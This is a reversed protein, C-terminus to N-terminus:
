STSDGAFDEVNYYDVDALHTAVSLRVDHQERYDCEGTEHYTARGIVLGQNYRMQIPLLRKCDWDDDAIYLSAGGQPIYIPVVVNHFAGKAEALDKHIQKYEPDHEFYSLFILGIGSVMLVNLDFKKGIADLVVDFNGRRLVSLVSEFCEEDAPDIWVM